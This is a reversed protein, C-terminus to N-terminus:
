FCLILHGLSFSPLQSSYVKRWLRYFIDLSWIFLHEIGSIRLSIIIGYHYMIEYGSHHNCWFVSLLYQCPHPSISVRTCQQYSQSITCNSHFVTHLTKLLNLLSSGVHGLLGAEPYIVLLISDPDKVAASNVVALLHFCGLYENGTSYILLIHYRCM